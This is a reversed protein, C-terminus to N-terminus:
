ITDKSSSTSRSTLEHILSLLDKCECVKERNPKYVQGLNTGHSAYCTPCMLAWPGQWTSGDVFYDEDECATGCMDCKISGLWKKTM